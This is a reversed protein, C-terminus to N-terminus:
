RSRVVWFKVRKTSAIRGAADLTSVELMYTGPTLRKRKLTLQVTGAASARATAGLAATTTGASGNRTASGVSVYRGPKRERTKPCKTWRPSGSRRLVTVRVRAAATLRYSFSLAREGRAPRRGLTTSTTCRQTAKVWAVYGQPATAPQPTAPRQAPAPASVTVTVSGSTTSCPRDSVTVKATYTGAAAYAHTPNAETSSTGDGFDWRYSLPDGDADTAGASFKVSLPALTAGSANVAPSANLALMPLKSPSSARWDLVQTQQQGCGVLVDLANADRTDSDHSPTDNWVGAGGGFRYEKIWSMGEPPNNWYDGDYVPRVYGIGEGGESNGFMAVGYRASKLDLGALASRPVVVAIQHTEAVALMDGQVAPATAGPIYTGASNFRGDGVVAVTWAGATDLNTGPLAHAATGQGSGLYVNLRQHSIEDGGWPNVIEGAIKAVFIADEGDTFVDLATLDFGGKAFASNTPYTYTGPGNDDGAPDTFGGIRTGFSVVTVQRMNTGGDTAEAVVTIQNRGRQLMIPASFSGGGPTVTVATDGSAVTVKAANTTGTVTIARSDALSGTAPSTIALDPVSRVAGTAYRNSVVSPTEVPKGAAIARALRVYQAMAWALPSASGTAKGPQYGYPAPAPRAEDWVQEPIM